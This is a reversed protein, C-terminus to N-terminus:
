LFLCITKHSNNIHNQNTFRYKQRFIQLVGYSYKVVFLSINPYIRYGLSVFLLIFISHDRFVVTLTVMYIALTQFVQYM